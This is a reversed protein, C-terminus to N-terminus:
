YDLQLRYVTQRPTSVTQADERQAFQWGVGDQGFLEQLVEDAEGDTGVVQGLQGQAQVTVGPDDRVQEILSIRRDLFQQRIGDLRAVLSAFVNTNATRARGVVRIQGFPQHLLADFADRQVGIGYQFGPEEQSFTLG